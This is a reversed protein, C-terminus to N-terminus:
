SKWVTWNKKWRKVYHAYPVLRAKCFIPKAGDQLKIDATFGKIIGLGKDFVMKHRGLVDSLTDAKSVHFINCWNLKRQELCNRGLLPPGDGDVVILPLVLEQQEYVVPLHVEGYVPIRVGNYAKSKIKTGRLPWQNFQQGYLVKPLISVTAGTDLQMECSKQDLMVSVHMPTHEDKGSDRAAFIGLAEDDKIDVEVVEELYKTEEVQKKKGSLKNGTASDNSPKRRAYVQM